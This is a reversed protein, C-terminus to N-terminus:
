GCEGYGDIQQMEFGGIAIQHEIRCPQIHNDTRSVSIKQYIVGDDRRTVEAPTRFNGYQQKMNYRHQEQELVIAGRSFFFRQGCAFFYNEDDTNREKHQMHYAARTPIIQM